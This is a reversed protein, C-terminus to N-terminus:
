KSENMGGITIFLISIINGLLIGGILFFKTTLFSWDISGLLIIGLITFQIIQFSVGTWFLKNM